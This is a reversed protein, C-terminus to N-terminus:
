RWLLRYWIWRSFLILGLKEM